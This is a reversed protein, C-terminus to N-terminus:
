EEWSILYFKFVTNFICNGKHRFIATRVVVTRYIDLNEFSEKLEKNDIVVESM